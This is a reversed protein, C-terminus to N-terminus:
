PHSIAAGHVIDLEFSKRARRIVADHRLKIATRTVGRERAIDAFSRGAVYHDYLLKRETASCTGLFKRLIRHQENQEAIDIGGPSGLDKAYDLPVTNAERQLRPRVIEKDIAGRLRLHAYGYLSAGRSPDYHGLGRLFAERATQVADEYEHDRSDHFGATRAAQHMARDYRTLLDAKASAAEASRGATQRVLTLEDTSSFVL